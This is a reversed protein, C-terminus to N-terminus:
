YYEIDFKPPASPSLFDIKRNFAMISDFNSYITFLLYEYIGSKLVLIKLTIINTPVLLQLFIGFDTKDGM